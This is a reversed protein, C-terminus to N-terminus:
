GGLFITRADIQDIHAVRGDFLGTREAINVVVDMKSVPNISEERKVYVKTTAECSLTIVTTGGSPGIFRLCSDATCVPPLKEDRRQEGAGSNVSLVGHHGM